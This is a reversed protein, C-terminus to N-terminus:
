NREDKGSRKKVLETIENTIKIKENEDTVTKLLGKLRKIEEADLIKRIQYLYELFIKDNLEEFEVRNTINHVMDRINDDADAFLLFNSYSIDKYESIYYEIEKVLNRENKNKLFGLQSNFIKIYKKDSMLYFFVKNVCKDYKTEERNNVIAKNINIEKDFTVEKKLVDLDIGYEDSLKKLTIEKTLNDKGDLMKIVNKVYSILDETNNLNKNKKLSVLKYDFYNMGNSIVNKFANVGNKVIYEDPDKAGVLRVVKVDVAANSLAEGVSITAMEGADDNDLMLIVKCRLKKIINVQEKTLATGMLAIVNNIGSSSIRIADMNGEVVIVEKAEKIYKLANSYNFINNGKVYINTEKTNIYKASDEGNFIRGTFGVVNGELNMIPIMIRNVFKDYGNIGDKTILGLNDLTNIDYKKILNEYLSNDKLSLGIRFEKIISKDISRGELYKIANKGEASQLNNQFIKTALEMIELEKKNPNEKKVSEYDLPIGVKDAVKKVAEPFSVNEYNEIFTFVNGGAGCTFCKYMQREESVSMSPSHDDHFPCVGFYNKGKRTLPVYDAIITVIDASNKIDRIKEESIAQM